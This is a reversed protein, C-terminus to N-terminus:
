AGYLAQKARTMISDLDGQVAKDLENPQHKALIEQVKEKATQVADRAGKREWTERVNRDFITPIFHESLVHRRTHKDALYSGGPGIRDILGLALTDDKVNVGRIARYVMGLIENDIVVQAFSATRITEIFGAGTL